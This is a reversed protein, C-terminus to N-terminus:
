KTVEHTSVWSSCESYTGNFVQDDSEDLVLYTDGELWSKWANFEIDLDEKLSQARAKTIRKWNYEQRTKVPDVYIVGFPMCDWRQDPWNGYDDLRVAIGSHIYAMIPRKLGHRAAWNEAHATESVAKIFADQNSCDIDGGGYQSNWTIITCINGDWDRPSMPDEDQIIQYESM